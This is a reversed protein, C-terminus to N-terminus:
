MYREKKMEIEVFNGAILFIKHQLAWADPRIM